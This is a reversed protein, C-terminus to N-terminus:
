ARSLHHGGSVVVQGSACSAGEIAKIHKEIRRVTAAPFGASTLYLRGLRLATSDISYYKEVYARGRRGIEVLDYEGLLCGRLVQELSEPDANIIPCSQADALRHRDRIYCLVPKGLAMAELATYGHFGGIFQEAVIDADAM